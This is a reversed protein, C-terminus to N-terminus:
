INKSSANKAINHYVKNLSLYIDNTILFHSHIFLRKLIVPEHPITLFHATLFCGFDLIPM